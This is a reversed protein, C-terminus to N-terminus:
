RLLNAMYRIVNDSATDNIGFYACFEKCTNNDSCLVSGDKEITIHIDAGVNDDSISYSRTEGDITVCGTEPDLLKAKRLLLSIIENAIADNMEKKIAREGYGDCKIDVYGTSFLIDRIRQAGGNVDNDRLFLINPGLGEIEKSSINRMHLFCVLYSLYPIYKRVLTFDDVGSIYDIIFEGMKPLATITDDGVEYKQKIITKYLERPFRPLSYSQKMLMKQITETARVVFEIYAYEHSGRIKKNCTEHRVAPYMITRRYFKEGPFIPEACRDCAYESYAKKFFSNETIHNGSSNDPETGSVWAFDEYAANWAEEILRTKENTKERNFLLDLKCDKLLSELSMIQCSECRSTASFVEYILRSDISYKLNYFYEEIIPSGRATLILYLVARTDMGSSRNDSQVDEDSTADNTTILIRRSDSTCVPCLRQDDKTVVNDISGTSGRIESKIFDVGNEAAMCDTSNEEEYNMNNKEYSLPPSANYENIKQLISKAESEILGVDVLESVTAQSIAAPTRFKSTLLLVAVEETIGRSILAILMDKKAM